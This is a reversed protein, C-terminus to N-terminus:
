GRASPHNWSGQGALDNATALIESALDHMSVAIHDFKKCSGKQGYRTPRWQRCVALLLLRATVGRLSATGGSRLRSLIGSGVGHSSLVCGVLPRFLFHGLM